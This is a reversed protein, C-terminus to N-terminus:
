FFLDDFFLFIHQFGHHLFSDGNEHPCTKHRWEKHEREARGSGTKVLVLKVEFLVDEGIVVDFFDGRQRHTVQRRAVCLCARLCTHKIPRPSRKALKLWNM